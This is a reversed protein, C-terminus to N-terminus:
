RARGASRKRELAHGRPCLMHACAMGDVRKNPQRPAAPDDPLKVWKSGRATCIEVMTAAGGPAAAPAAALGLVAAACLSLPAARATV